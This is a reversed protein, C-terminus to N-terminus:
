SLKSEWIQIVNMLILSLPRLTGNDLRVVIEASAGGWPEEGWASGGYGGTEELYTQAASSLKRPPHIPRTLELHKHADDIDRVLAFDSNTEALRSRYEKVKADFQNGKCTHHRQGSPSCLQGAVFRRSGSAM